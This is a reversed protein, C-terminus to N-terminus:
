EAVTLVLAYRDNGGLTPDNEQELIIDCVVRRHVLYTTNQNRKYYFRREMILSGDPKYFQSDYTNLGEAANDPHDLREPDDVPLNSVDVLIDFATDQLAERMKVRKGETNGSLQNHRVRWTNGGYVVGGAYTADPPIIAHVPM